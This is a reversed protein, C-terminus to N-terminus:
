LFSISWRWSRSVARVLIWGPLGFVSVWPGRVGVVSRSITRWTSRAITDKRGTSWHLGWPFFGLRTLLLCTWKDRQRFVLWVCRELHKSLFGERSLLLSLWRCACPDRQLCNAVRPWGWLVIPRPVFLDPWVSGIRDLLFPVCALPFLLRIACTWSVHWAKMPESKEYSSFCKWFCKM